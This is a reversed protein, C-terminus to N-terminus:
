KSIKFLFVDYGDAFNPTETNFLSSWPKRMILKTGLSTFKNVIDWPFQRHSAHGKAPEFVLIYKDTIRVIQSFLDQQSPHIHELFGSGVSITARKRHSRSPM